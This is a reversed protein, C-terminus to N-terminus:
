NKSALIGPLTSIVLTTVTYVVAPNDLRLVTLDTTNQAVSDTNELGLVANADGDATSQDADTEVPKVIKWSNAGGRAIIIERDPYRLDIKDIDSSAITFLKPTKEPVPQHGIYLAVGGVIALLVLVIILNRFQM